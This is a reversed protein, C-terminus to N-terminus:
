RTLTPDGIALLKLSNTLYVAGATLHAIPMEDICVWGIAGGEELSSAEGMLGEWRTAPCTVPWSACRASPLPRPGTLEFGSKRSALYLFIRHVLYSCCPPHLSSPSTTLYYRLATFCWLHKWIQSSLVQLTKVCSRNSLYAYYIFTQIFSM